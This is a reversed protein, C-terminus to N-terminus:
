LMIVIDLVEWLVVAILFFVVLGVVLGQSRTRDWYEEEYASLRGKELQFGSCTRAQSQLFPNQLSSTSIQADRPELDNPNEEEHLHQAHPLAM